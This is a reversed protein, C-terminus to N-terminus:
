KVIPLDIFAAQNRVFFPRMHSSDSYIPDGDKSFPNCVNSPCVAINPDILHAGSKSLLTRMEESLALQKPDIHFEKGYGHSLLDDTNDISIRKFKKGGLMDKPDFQSGSASDLLVYVKYKESLKSVTTVFTNLADIRGEGFRISKKGAPTNIYYGLESRDSPNQDIFYSNWSGGFVVTNISPHDSLFKDFSDTRGYCGKHSEEYVNLIPPCGGSTLFVVNKAKRNSTLEVIRPSYHEVHSDGVFLVEPSSNSGYYVDQGNWIFKKLGFPYNWDGIANQINLNSSLSLRTSKFVWASSISYGLVGIVAMLLFLMATVNLSNGSKKIPKEIVRYTFFALLISLLVMAWRISISPTEGEVIRAFALLPWHWLYLPYSILGVWVLAKNSLLYRNLWSQPGSYIILATSVVPVLAWTGPYHSGLYKNLRFVGYIIAAIGVFAMVNKVPKLHCFRDLSSFSTKSYLLMWAMMGGALLEWARTLPSFFDTPQDISITYLNLAFSACGLILLAGLFTYKNKKCLFAVLPWVIYFQEEIGLSWLHLLIKSDAATDFYGAESLYLLNPVFAASAVTHLGLQRYEYPVLVYWGFIICFVLVLILAPYIRNIRRSYFEFFSFRSQDINEFIITSILYGSIVFFVDVGIYGGSIVDPFAHCLVVALVAIARLGDIDKRYKPHLLHTDKASM